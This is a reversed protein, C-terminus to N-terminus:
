SPLGQFYLISLLQLRKRQSMNLMMAPKTRYKLSCNIANKLNAGIFFLVDKITNIIINVVEITFKTTMSTIFLNSFLSLM